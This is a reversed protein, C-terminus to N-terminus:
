LSRSTVPERPPTAQELQARMRQFTEADIEGRAFRQRLIEEASPPSSTTVNNADYGGTANTRPAQTVFRVLAWVAIAVLVLWFLGSLVMWWGMGSGYYGYMM